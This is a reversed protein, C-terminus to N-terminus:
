SGGDGAYSANVGDPNLAEVNTDRHIARIRERLENAWKRVVANDERLEENEAKLKKTVGVAEMCQINAYEADRVAQELATKVDSM